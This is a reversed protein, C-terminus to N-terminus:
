EPARLFGVEGGQACLCRYDRDGPHVFPKCLFVRISGSFILFEAVFNVLGPLGLSALCAIVFAAAVRPMQHALGGLDPMYRTHAKDYVLGVLAFFLATMVGHAFMQLVAGNISIATAAALGFLVYGM